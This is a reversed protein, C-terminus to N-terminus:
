PRGSAVTGPCERRYIERAHPLPEARDQGDHHAHGARHAHQDGHEGDAGARTALFQRVGAVIAHDNGMGTLTKLAADCLILGGRQAVHGAYALVDITLGDHYEVGQHREFGAPAHGALPDEKRQDPEAAVQRRQHRLKAQGLPAHKSAPQMLEDGAVGTDALEAAELEAGPPRHVADVPRDDAQEILPLPLLAHDVGVGVNEHRREAAVRVRADACHQVRGAGELLQARRDLGVGRQVQVHLALAVRDLLVELRQICQQVEDAVEDARM